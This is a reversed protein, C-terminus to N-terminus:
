NMGFAFFEVLFDLSLLKNKWRRCQVCGTGARGITQGIGGGEIHEFTSKHMQLLDWLLGMSYDCWIARNNKLRNDKIASQMLLRRKSEACNLTLQLEGVVAFFFREALRCRM